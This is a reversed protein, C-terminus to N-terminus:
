PSGVVVACVRIKDAVEGRQFKASSPIFVTVAKIRIVYGQRVIYDRSLSGHHSLFYLIRRCHLLGPNSGQMPFTRQLLAYCGVGTNKGPSGGHVCSGPPSCHLTVLLPVHHLLQCMHFLQVHCLLQYMHLCSAHLCLEQPVLRSHEGKVQFLLLAM